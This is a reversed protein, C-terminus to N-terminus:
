HGRANPTSGAPRLVLQDHPEVCDLFGDLGSEVYIEFGDFPFTTDEALVEDALIAQVKGNVSAVRIVVDPDFRTAAAHSRALIDAAWESCTIMRDVSAPTAVLGGLM